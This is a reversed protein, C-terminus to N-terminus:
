NEVQKYYMKLVKTITQSLGKLSCYKAAVIFRAKSPVKHMKPTWHMNPLCKDEVNTGFLKKVYQDHKKVIQELNMNTIQTYTPTPNDNNVLGLEDVLVQAYHQKCIFAVNNSAKDIPTIVFKSHLAKLQNKISHKQLLPFFPKIVVSEQLDKIRNNLIDNFSIQWTDFLAENVKYM